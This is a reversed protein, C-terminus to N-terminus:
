RASLTTKKITSWASISVYSMSIHFLAMNKEFKMMVVAQKEENKNEMNRTEMWM